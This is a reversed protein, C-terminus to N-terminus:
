EEDPPHADLMVFRVKDAAHESVWLVAAVAHRMDAVIQRWEDTREADEGDLEEVQDVVAELENAACGMREAIEAWMQPTLEQM